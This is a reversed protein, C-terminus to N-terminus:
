RFPGMASPVAARISSTMARRRAFMSKIKTSRLRAIASKNVLVLFRGPIQIQGTVPEGKILGGCLGRRPFFRDDFLVRSRRCNHPCDILPIKACGPSTSPDPLAKRWSQLSRSTVFKVDTSFPHKRTRPVWSKSVLFYNRLAHKTDHLFDVIHDLLETPLQSYSMTTKKPFVAFSGSQRKTSEEQKEAGDQSGAKRTCKVCSRAPIPIGTYWTCAIVRDPVVAQHKARRLPCGGLM